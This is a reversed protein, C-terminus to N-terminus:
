TTFPNWPMNKAYELNPYYYVLAVQRAPIKFAVSDFEATRRTGNQMRMQLHTRGATHNPAMVQSDSEYQFNKANETISLTSLRLSGKGICYNLRAPVM